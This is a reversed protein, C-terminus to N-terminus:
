VLRDTALFCEWFERSYHDEASDCILGGTDVWYHLAIWKLTKERYGTQTFDSKTLHWSCIGVNRDSSESRYGLLYAWPYDGNVTANHM